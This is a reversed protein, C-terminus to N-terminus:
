RSRPPSLPPGAWSFAILFALYTLPVGVGFKWMDGYLPGFAFAHLADGLLQGYLFLLLNARWCGALYAVSVIDVALFVM